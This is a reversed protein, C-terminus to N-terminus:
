AAATVTDHAHAVALVLHQGDVDLPRLRTCTLGADALWERLAVLPNETRIRAALADYDEILLLEGHPGLLRAVERLAEVPRTQGPLARDLIVTDFDGAAHPL